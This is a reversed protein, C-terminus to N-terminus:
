RMPFGVGISRDTPAAASHLVAESHSVEGKDVARRNKSFRQSVWSQSPKVSRSMESGIGAACSRATFGRRVRDYGHAVTLQILYAREDNALACSSYAILPRKDGM